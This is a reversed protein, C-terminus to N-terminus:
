NMAEPVFTLELVLSKESKSKFTPIQYGGSIVWTKSIFYAAGLVAEGLSHKGSIFDGQIYLKDKWLNKEMGAQFGIKDINSNSTLSNRSEKGVFGDSIYYLGPVVKIGLKEYTFVTNLFTYDVLKTKMTLTAGLQSGFALALHSNINLKKQANFCFFPNYPAISDNTSYYHYNQVLVGNLNAGVEFNHNTGINITTNSVFNSNSFNFQQQFFIKKSPTIDSSPVNFFNQQAKSHEIFILLLTFFCIKNIM